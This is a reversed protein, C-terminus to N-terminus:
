LFYLICPVLLVGMLCTKRVGLVHPAMGVMASIAFVVLGLVGALALCMASLALQVKPHAGGIALPAAVVLAAVAWTVMRELRM